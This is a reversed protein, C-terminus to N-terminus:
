YGRPPVVTVGIMKSLLDVFMRSEKDQSGSLDFTYENWYLWDPLPGNDAGLLGHPWGIALARFVEITAVHTPQYKTVKTININVIGAM